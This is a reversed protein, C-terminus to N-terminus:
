GTGTLKVGMEYDPIKAVFLKTRSHASHLYGVRSDTYESALKSVM